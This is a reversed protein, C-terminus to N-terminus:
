PTVRVAARDALEVAVGKEVKARAADRGGVGARQEDAREDRVAERADGVLPQAKDEFGRRLGPQLM